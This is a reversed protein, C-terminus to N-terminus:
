HLCAVTPATAVVISTQVSSTSLCMQTDQSNWFFTGAPFTLATVATGTRPATSTYVGMLGSVIYASAWRHTSDGFAISNDTGPRVSTGAVPIGIVVSNRNAGTGPIAWSYTSGAKVGVAVIVSLLVGLLLYGINKKM